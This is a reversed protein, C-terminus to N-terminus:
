LLHLDPVGVIDRTMMMTQASTPASLLKVNTNIMSCERAGCLCM